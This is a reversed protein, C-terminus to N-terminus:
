CRSWLVQSSAQGGSGGMLYLCVEMCAISGARHGVGTKGGDPFFRIHAWRAPVWPHSLVQLFGSKRHSSELVGSSFSFYFNTVTFTTLSVRRSSGKAWPFVSHLPTNPPPSRHPSLFTTLLSRSTGTPHFVAPSVWKEGGTGLTSLHSNQPQSSASGFKLHHWLTQAWHSTWGWDRSTGCEPLGRSPGCAGRFCLTSFECKWRSQQWSQPPEWIRRHSRARTSLSCVQFTM